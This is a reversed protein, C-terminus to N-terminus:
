GATPLTRGLEVLRTEIARHVTKRPEAARWLDLVEADSTVKVISVAQEASYGALNPPSDPGPAKKTLVASEEPTHIKLDGRDLKRRFDKVLGRKVDGGPGKGSLLMQVVSTAVNNGGPALYLRPIKNKNDPPLDQPADLTNTIRTLQAM